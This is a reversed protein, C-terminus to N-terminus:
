IRGPIARLNRAAGCQEIAQLRAELAAIQDRLADAPQRQAADRERIIIAAAALIIKADLTM